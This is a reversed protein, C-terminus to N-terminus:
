MKHCFRTVQPVGLVLPLMLKIALSTLVEASTSVLDYMHLYMIMTTCFQKFKYM